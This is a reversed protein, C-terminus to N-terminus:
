SSHPAQDAMSIEGANEREEKQKAKIQFYIEGFDCASQTQTNDSDSMIAIAGLPRTPEKGYLRKYDDFLNREETQWGEGEVPKGSRIVFLKVRESFPSSSFTDAPINEDWLYEIVNSNFFNSGPFVVYIRGAFDDERRNALKLPEKKQPFAVARWKWCLYLDPSVKQDMKAYLGSSTGQSSASLFNQDGAERIEYLTKGKFIKEEWSKLNEPTNFSFRNIVKAPAALRGVALPSKQHRQVQKLWADSVLALFLAGELLLILFLFRATRLNV